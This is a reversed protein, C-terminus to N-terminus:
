LTKWTWRIFEGVNPQTHSDLHWKDSIPSKGMYYLHTSNCILVNTIFKILSAKNTILVFDDRTNGKISTVHDSLDRLYKTVKPYITYYIILYWKIWTGHASWLHWLRNSINENMDKNMPSQNYLINGSAVELIHKTNNYIIILTTTSTQSINPILSWSFTLSVKHFTVWSIPATSNTYM